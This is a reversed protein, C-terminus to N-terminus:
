RLRVYPIENKWINKEESGSFFVLFFFFALIINSLLSSIRRLAQGLENNLICCFGGTTNERLSSKEGLVNTRVFLERGVNQKRLLSFLVPFFGLISLKSASRNM